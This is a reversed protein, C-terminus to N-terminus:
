TNSTSGGGFFEAPGRLGGGRDNVYIYHLSSPPPPNCYWIYVPVFDPLAGGGDISLPRPPNGDYTCQYLIQYDEEDPRILLPPPNGAYM